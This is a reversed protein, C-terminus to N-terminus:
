KEPQRTRVEISGKAMQVDFRSLFSMGLLGDVGPGYSKGDLDQVAVPVNTATLRGLAVKDAKSLKAKALGNATSLTIETTDALPIHARDSSTSDPAAPETVCGASPELKEESM